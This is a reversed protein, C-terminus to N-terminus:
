QTKTATFTGGGSITGQLSTGSLKGTYTRGGATFTVEDGKVRGAVTATGLTGSLMQFTQNLTLTQTGVNWRGGVQAPVYWLRATCWSTCPNPVEAIDDHEWEGMTFSNSVVRTGPKMKLLTPRLKLNLDPLLFLTIVTAKSFDTEFIDAKMFTTMNTVGAEKARRQSLEVMDPNYEIGMARVGRKAAAIVTKGDGSGLDMLFDAPTVQAMDLMKQVLLDPSPVWVVDKGSQGVQPEYPKQGAAQASLAAPVLSVSVALALARALQSRFM